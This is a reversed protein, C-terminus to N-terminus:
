VTLGLQEMLHPLPDSSIYAAMAWDYKTVRGWTGPSALVALPPRVQVGDKISRLGRSKEGAFGLEVFNVGAIMSLNIKFFFRPNCELYYISGDPALIMDFNYVGELGVRTVIKAVDSYIQDHQFTSYVGRHYRHAVFGKINGANVYVSTGIDLGEVLAQVVIPRYNIMRLRSELDIGDLVVVGGSGSRSVPKAVVPYGLRGTAIEHALTAVDPLLRTVPHRVGLDECLQAFAWKNNLFDFDNLSPVPFCPVEILERCAILARTSPADGPIIMTIGLERVLCNIELALAEDRGGNIICDSLFFRRCYRSFRLGRAGPNGLVYVEAPSVQACRMVRYPMKFLTAVMLVRTPGAPAPCPTIKDKGAGSEANSSEAVGEPSLDVPLQADSHKLAATPVLPGSPDVAIAGTKADSM